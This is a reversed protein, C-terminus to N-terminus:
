NWLIEGWIRSGTQRMYESSAANDTVSVLKHIRYPDYEAVYVEKGDSTVVIDHPNSYNADGPFKSTVNGSEMDIVFGKVEETLPNLMPGNLVYLQGGNKPLYTVSFLRDGVLPSHYQSHFQGNSHQFCQVRGNERDAVCVLGKDLALTLAHPVAFTNEPAYPKTRGLFLNM